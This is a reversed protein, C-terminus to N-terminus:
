IVAQPPPVLPARTINPPTVPTRTRALPMLASDAGLIPLASPPATCSQCGCSVAHGAAGGEAPAAAVAAGLRDVGSMVVSAETASSAPRSQATPAALMGEVDCVMGMSAASGIMRVLLPQFGVCGLNWIAMVAVLALLARSIRSSRLRSRLYHM